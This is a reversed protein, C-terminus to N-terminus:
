KAALRWYRPTTGSDALHPCAQNPITAGDSFQFNVQRPIAIAAQEEETPSTRLSHKRSQLFTKNLPQDDSKDVQQQQTSGDVGSGTSVLQEAITTGNITYTWRGAMTAWNQM